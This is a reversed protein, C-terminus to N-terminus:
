RCYPYLLLTLMEGSLALNSENMDGLSHSKAAPFVITVNVWWLFDIRANAIWGVSYEKADADAPPLLMLFHFHGSPVNTKLKLPCLAMMLVNDTFESPTKKEPPGYFIL